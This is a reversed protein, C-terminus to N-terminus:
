TTGARCFPSRDITQRDVLWRLPEGWRGSLFGCVLLTFARRPGRHLQRLVDCVASGIARYGKCRSGAKQQLSDISLEAAIAMRAPENLDPSLGTLRTALQLHRNQTSWWHDPADDFSERSWADGQASALAAAFVTESFDRSLLDEVITIDTSLPQDDPSVRLVPLRAYPAFAPPYLTFCCEHTRCRVVTLPHEPGTKRHRYSHIVIVCDADSPELGGPCCSPIQAVLHGSGCDIYPTIFFPRRARTESPYSATMAINTM